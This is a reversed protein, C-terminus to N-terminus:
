RLSIRDPPWYTLLVPGILSDRPVAGWIRSDCSHARDDGLFFYHGASVHWTGSGDDRLSRKVYPENLRRGDIFMTGDHESVVDGPMGILRKVFTTGGDGPGCQAATPPATFVVIQGRKPSSFRYALRNALVRDSSTASCWEGPKACRLTPEMSSSPIRYPKAVEAEFVLVFAAAFGVTVVWDVVSRWPQPIRRKSGDVSV